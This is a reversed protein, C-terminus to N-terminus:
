VRRKGKDKRRGEMDFPYGLEALERELVDRM